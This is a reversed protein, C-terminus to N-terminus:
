QQGSAEGTGRDDENTIVNPLSPSTPDIPTLPTATVGDTPDLLTELWIVNDRSDRLTIVPRLIEREERDWTNSRVAQLLSDLPWSEKFEPPGETDIPYWGLMQYRVAEM